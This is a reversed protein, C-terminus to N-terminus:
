DSSQGKKKDLERMRKNIFDRPTMPARAESADLDAPDRKEPGRRLLREVAERIGARRGAQGRDTEKPM